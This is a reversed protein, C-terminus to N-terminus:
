LTMGGGVEDASRITEWLGVRTTGLISQVIKLQEQLVATVQSGSENSCLLTIPFFVFGVFWRVVVVSRRVMTIVVVIVVTVAPERGGSRRRRRGRSEMIDSRASRKTSTM